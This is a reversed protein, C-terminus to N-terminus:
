TPMSRWRPISSPRSRRCGSSPYTSIPLSREVASRAHGARRQDRARYPDQHRRDAARRRAQATGPLGFQDAAYGADLALWFNVLPLKTGSPWCSRSAMASRPTNCRPCGCNRRRARIPCNPATSAPPWNRIRSLPSVELIYVGDSLWRRAAARLDDPTAAEIRKLTTKYADPSGGFVQSSALRDSKGGFGGIREIGRVFNAMYQTKVRELEHPTPGGELLRALEEDVAKEM